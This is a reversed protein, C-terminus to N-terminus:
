VATDAIGLTKVIKDSRDTLTQEYSQQTQQAFLQISFLTFIIASFISKM